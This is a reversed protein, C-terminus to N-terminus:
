EHTVEIIDTAGSRRNRSTIGCARRNRKPWKHGNMTHGESHGVFCHVKNKTQDFGGSGYMDNDYGKEM